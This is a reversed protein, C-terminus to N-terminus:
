NRYPFIGYLCVVFNMGLYPQMNNHAQNGGNNGIVANATITVPSEGMTDDSTPSYQAVGTSAFFNGQPLDTGGADNLEYPAVSGTVTVAGAHTHATMQTLNITVGETGIMEGNTYPSLGQGNGTGALARSRLDPLAFTTSGDGGYQTGLISFLATNSRIALIQGQCLAWNKPAFNGAFMRIEGITGEM